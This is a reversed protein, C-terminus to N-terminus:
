KHRRVRFTREIKRALPITLVQGSSCAKCFGGLLKIIHWPRSIVRSTEQETNTTLLRANGTFTPIIHWALRLLLALSFDKKPGVTGKWM